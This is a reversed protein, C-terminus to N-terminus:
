KATWGTNGTGSTKVYLTTSAGGDTRSYLAGINATVVGEPSGSGASWFITSTLKFQTGTVPADFSYGSSAGAWALANASHTETVDGNNFNIVAGSALFLDSWMKTGSGLAAADSTSPYVTSSDVSAIATLTGAKMAAFSLAGEESTNTPSVATALINAYERSVGTSSNGFFSVKNLIDSAAPTASDRFMKISGSAAAGAETNNITLGFEGASTGSVTLAGGFTATGIFAATTSSVTLWPSTALTADGDIAFTNAAGQGAFVSGSTGKFEVSINQSNNTREFTALTGTSTSQFLSGTASPGVTIGTDFTYSAAATFATATATMALFKTRTGAKTAYFDIRGDESTSTADVIVTEVSAYEQTNGASDEGNFLLKGLIDSAAPTASNRYFELVPGATAGADTSEMLYNTSLYPVGAKIDAMLQRIANDGDKVKGTTGSIDIGSITTNSAATTSYDSIAM